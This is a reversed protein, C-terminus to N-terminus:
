RVDCLASIRGRTCFSLRRRFDLMRFRGLVVLLSEAIDLIFSKARVQKVRFIGDLKIDFCYVVFDSQCLLLVLRHRKRTCVSFELNLPEVTSRLLCLLVPGGGSVAKKVKM